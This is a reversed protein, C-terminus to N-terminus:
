SVSCMSALVVCRLLFYMSGFMVICCCHIWWRVVWRVCIIVARGMDAVKVNEAASTKGSSTYSEATVCHLFYSFTVEM